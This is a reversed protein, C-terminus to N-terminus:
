DLGLDAVIEAEPKLDKDPIGFDRRMIAKIREWVDAEDVPEGRDEITKVVFQQISGLSLLTKAVPDPITLNFESEVAMVLEVTDLGM